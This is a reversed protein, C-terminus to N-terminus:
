AQPEVPQATDAPAEANGRLVSLEANAINARSAEELADWDAQTMELSTRASAEVDAMTLPRWNKADQPDISAALAVILAVGEVPSDQCVLDAYLPEVPPEPPIPAPDQPPPPSEAVQAQAANVVVQDFSGGVVPRGYRDLIRIRRREELIQIGSYEQDPHRERKLVGDPMVTFEGIVVSEAEGFVERFSQKM